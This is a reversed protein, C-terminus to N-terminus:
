AHQEGRILNALERVAVSLMAMDPEGTTQRLDNFVNQCRDVPTLNTNMWQQLRHEASNESATDGLVNATLQRLHDYLSNLLAARARMQWHGKVTLNMIRARLWNVQLRAALEFYIPAVVACDEETRLMVETIDLASYLTDLSAVWQAMEEPVQHSVYRDATAQLTASVSEPLWQWVEAKLTSVTPKFRDVESEINLPSRRNRLLWLSVREMLDQSQILMQQQVQADVQNDLQEIADWLMKMGFIGRATVYARVINAYSEGTEDWLYFAFASDMRNLLSNTIYTAVIERRLPHSEMERTLSNRLAKPFYQVLYKHLYHDEPVDSSIIAEYLAIKGYALMVALEPATFNQGNAAREQMVEDSPLYELERNLKEQKELLRIFRLHDGLLESGRAQMLSIAQPQLYNQRLVLAAVEDTMDALVQNRKKLTLDGQRVVRDLL